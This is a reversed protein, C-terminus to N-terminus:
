LLDAEKAQTIRKERDIVSLIERQIHRAKLKSAITIGILLAFTFGFSLWVYFGHTGMAIFAEISDFQM